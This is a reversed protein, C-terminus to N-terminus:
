HHRPISTGGRHKQTKDVYTPAGGGSTYRKEISSVANTKPPNEMNTIGYLLAGIPINTSISLYCDLFQKQWLGYRIHPMEIHCPSQFALSPPQNSAAWEGSTAIGAVTLLMQRQSM